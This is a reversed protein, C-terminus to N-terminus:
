GAQLALERLLPALRLSERGARCWELHPHVLGGGRRHGGPQGQALPKFRGGHPFHTFRQDPDEGQGHLITVAALYLKGVEGAQWARGLEAATAPDRPFLLLGSTMADLRHVPYLASLGTHARIADLLGHEAQERHFSVDPHKDIVLWRPTLAILDFM